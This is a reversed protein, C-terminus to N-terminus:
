KGESRNLIKRYHSASAAINTKKKLFLWRSRLSVMAFDIQDEEDDDEEINFESLAGSFFLLSLFAFSLYM